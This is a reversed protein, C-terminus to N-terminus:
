CSSASSRQWIVKFYPNTLSKVPQIHLLCAQRQCTEKFAPSLMCESNLNQAPILLAVITNLSRGPMITATDSLVRYQMLCARRLSIRKYNVSVLM